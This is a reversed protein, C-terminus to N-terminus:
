RPRRRQKRGHCRPVLSCSRRHIVISPVLSFPLPPPPLSSLSPPSPPSPFLSLLPSPFSLSPPPLPFSLSLLSHTHSSPFTLCPSPYFSSLSLLPLSITYTTNNPSGLPYWSSPPPPRPIIEVVFSHTILRRGLKTVRKGGEVVEGAGGQIAQKLTNGMVAAVTRGDSLSGLGQGQAQGLGPGSMGQGLGLGQGQGSVSSRNTVNGGSGGSRGSGGGGGRGSAGGAPGRVTVVWPTLAEFWMM